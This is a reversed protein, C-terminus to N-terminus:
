PAAEEGEAKVIAALLVEGLEPYNGDITELAWKAAALLDAHANCARVIFEAQDETLHDAIAYDGDYITSSYGACLEHTEYSLNLPKM